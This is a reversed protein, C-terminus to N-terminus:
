RFDCVIQNSTIEVQKITQNKVPDTQRIFVSKQAEPIKITSSFILDRSAVGSKIVTSNAIEPSNDFIEIKYLFQGNYKDDIVVTFNISKTVQDNQTQSGFADIDTGLEDVTSSCSIAAFGITIIAVLYIIKTRM